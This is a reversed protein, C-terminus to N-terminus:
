RPVKRPETVTIWPLPGRIQTTTPSLCPPRSPAARTSQAGTVSGVIPAENDTKCKGGAYIAQIEAQTLATSFIEVEDLIGQFIRPFNANRAARYNAGIVTSGTGYVVSGLGVADFTGEVEGNVYLTVVHADAAGDVTLAIFIPPTDLFSHTSVIRVASNVSTPDNDFYVSAAIHGNARWSVFYSWLPGNLAADDIAKQVLMNGYTNDSNAGPGQREAWLDVTFVTPQLTSSDDIEIQANSGGFGFAKGLLGDVHSVGAFSAVPNVGQFDVFPVEDGTWWSILEVGPRVYPGTPVM